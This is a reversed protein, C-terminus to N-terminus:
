GRVLRGTFRREGDPLPRVLASVPAFFNQSEDKLAGKRDSNLGSVGQCPPGGGVLVVSAQSYDRSWERVM